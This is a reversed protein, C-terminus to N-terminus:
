KGEQQAYWSLGHCRPCKGAYTYDIPEPARKTIVRKVVFIWGSECKSPEGDPGITSTSTWGCGPRGTEGSPPPPEYYDREPQVANVWLRIEGASPLRNTETNSARAPDALLASIAAEAIDESPAADFLAKARERYGNEGMSAFGVLGDLRMIQEGCFKMSPKM